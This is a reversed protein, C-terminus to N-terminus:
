LHEEVDHEFAYFAGPDTAKLGELASAADEETMTGSQVDALIQRRLDLAVEPSHADADLNLKEAM